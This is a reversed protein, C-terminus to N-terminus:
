RTAAPIEVFEQDLETMQVVLRRYSEIEALLISRAEVPWAGLEDASASLRQDLRELLPALGNPTFREAVEAFRRPDVGPEQEVVELWSQLHDRLGTELATRATQIEAPVALQPMSLRGIAIVSLRGVIRRLSGAAGIVRDPNVGSRRGEVRAEDAIALMDTLHLTVQMDLERVRQETLNAARGLLELAVHLIRVVRPALAKGAYEPVLLLFVLTVIILGLFIGWV